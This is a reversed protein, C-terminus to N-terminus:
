VPSSVRERCSARGIKVTRARRASVVRLLERKVRLFRPYKIRDGSFFRLDYKKVREDLHYFFNGVKSDSYVLVVEHGKTCMENAFNCTVKALGGSDEVMETFNALMIKM